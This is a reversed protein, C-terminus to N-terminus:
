LSFTPAILGSASVAVVATVHKSIGYSTSNVRVAGHNTDTPSFSKWKNGELASVSTEDMNWFYDPHALFHSQTKRVKEIAAFFSEVHQFSEPALKSHDRNKYQRCTIDRHRSRFSQIADYSPIENRWGQRGDTVIRAIISRIREYDVVFGREAVVKMSEVITIEEEDTLIRKRGVFTVDGAQQIVTDQDM